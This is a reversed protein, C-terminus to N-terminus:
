NNKIPLVSEVAQVDMTKFIKFVLNALKKTIKFKLTMVATPTQNRLYYKKRNKHQLDLDSLHIKM